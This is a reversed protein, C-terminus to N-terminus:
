GAARDPALSGLHEPVPDKGAHRDAPLRLRPCTLYHTSVGGCRPCLRPQRNDPRAPAAEPDGPPQRPHAIWTAALNWTMTIVERPSPGRPGIM